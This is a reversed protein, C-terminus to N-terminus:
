KCYSTMVELFLAKDLEKHGKAAMGQAAGEAIASPRQGECAYGLTYDASHLAVGLMDNAAAQAGVIQGASRTCLNELGKLADARSIKMDALSAAFKDARPALAACTKDISGGFSDYAIFAAMGAAAVTGSVKLDRNPNAQGDQGSQGRAESSRSAGNTEVSVNANLNGTLAALGIIASFLCVVAVCIIVVAKGIKKLMIYGM